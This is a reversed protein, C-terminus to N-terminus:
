SQIPKLIYSIRVPIETKNTRIVKSLRTGCSVLRGPYNFSEKPLSVKAGHWLNIKKM